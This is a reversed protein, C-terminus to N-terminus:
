RPLYGTRLASAWDPRQRSLALAAMPRHDYPVSLLACTWAGDRQEAIAYRADPSGTQVAHPFPHIDDYAPLGVSGPNVILQGSSARVARPVHTHGCAVLPADVQGLRADIEALTAARFLSPEVTELFYAVDSSPTGHCLMVEPSLRLSPELSALWEFEKPGLRAHAFEDSPGWRGPGLTLLQREHNGALHVWDQAMLFRATELPMLPGSVSDGLNVVLDAGRRAIDEVVAELAPLNGHIDSVIAIRM